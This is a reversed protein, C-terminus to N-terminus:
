PALSDLLVEGADIARRVAASVWDPDVLDVKRGFLSRLERTLEESAEAGIGAIALDVDSISARFLQKPISGFLVVRRPGLHARIIEVARPMLTRLRAAEQEDAEFTEAIRRRFNERFQAPTLAM